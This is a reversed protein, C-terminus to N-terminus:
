HHLDIFPSYQPLVFASDMPCFRYGAERDARRPQGSVSGAVVQARALVRGREGDGPCGGYDRHVYDKRANFIYPQQRCNINLVRRGIYPM